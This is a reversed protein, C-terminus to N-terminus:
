STGFNLCGLRHVRFRTALVDTFNNYQQVTESDCQRVAIDSNIIWNSFILQELDTSVSM